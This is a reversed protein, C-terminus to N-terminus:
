EYKEDWKEKGTDHHHDAVPRLVGEDIGAIRILIGDIADVGFVIVGTPVVAIM